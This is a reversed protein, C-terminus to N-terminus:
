QFQGKLEELLAKQAKRKAEVETFGVGKADFSIERLLAQTKLNLWNSHFRAVANHIVNGDIDVSSSELTLFGIFAEDAFNALGLDLIARSEMNFVKGVYGRNIAEQTFFYNNADYGKSRLINTVQNGLLNDFKNEAIVAVCVDQIGNKNPSPNNIMAKSLAPAAPKAISINGNNGTHLQTAQTKNKGVTDIKAVKAEDKDGFIKEWVDTGENVGTIVAGVVSITGAAITGLNKLSAM